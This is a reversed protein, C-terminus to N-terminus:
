LIEFESNSIEFGRVMDVRRMVEPQISTPSDNNSCRIVTYANERWGARKAANVTRGMQSQPPM